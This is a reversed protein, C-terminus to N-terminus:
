SHGGSADLHSVDLDWLRATYQDLLADPIAMIRPGYTWLLATKVRRGAYIERLALRYAALQFLYAAAVQEVKSPPPRNTKYDVVLVENGLDVLRDLQGMLKLPPGKRKPNPILAVIPVEARSQPGFLPAFEPARLIALTETAIGQRASLLLASGRQALYGAASKDWGAQPLTPLHQLLAHTLTGRLFRNDGMQAAPPPAPPEENAPRQRSPQEILPEGTEDPAYAELRSPALPLSLAPERPAPRAVWPPLAAVPAGQKQANDRVKPPALQPEIRRRVKAGDPSEEEQLTDGLAGTILEYWCGASPGNKGEFGAIYLRDRARTMAVYLLRNREETERRTREAKAAAIAPHGSTGKVSWVFPTGDAGEPLKLNDIDFLTTVPGGTATSCTDPLFVIPAELGKAGHVTMVRVEDRGHEMDRKVERDAERLHTLFGTLSPPSSDDYSLALNLFEDIPDAAEPGLRALLKARGGERDLISAFFEFPPVFDARSRWRKLTDAAGQYRSNDGAHDILSKWLTGKRGAALAMLDNDDFGILPSKLVEALALDDEPLTLFDGLSLLDAVAIQDSLRLRDAGAVDIGRAKLAGVMPGAFPRRKRVLILIDGATIPRGESALMEGSDLWGRITTAIREALREAPARAAAEDLPTWPDVNGADDAVETPWVEVVGGHGLRHVGHRVIAAETSLGPTQRHDAFVSDV